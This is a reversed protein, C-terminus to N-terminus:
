DVPTNIAELIGDEERPLAKAQRLLVRRYWGAVFALEIMSAVLYVPIPWAVGAMLRELALLAVNALMIVALAFVAILVVGM